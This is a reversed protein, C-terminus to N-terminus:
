GRISIGAVVAVQNGCAGLDLGDLFAKLQSEDPWMGGFSQPWDVIAPANGM